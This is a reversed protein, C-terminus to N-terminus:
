SLVAQGHRWRPYLQGCRFPPGIQRENEMPNLPTNSMFIVEIWMSFKLDRTSKLSSRALNVQKIPSFPEPLDETRCHM